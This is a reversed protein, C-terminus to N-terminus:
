LLFFQILRRSIVSESTVILDDLIGTSKSERAAKSRLRDGDSGALAVTSSPM